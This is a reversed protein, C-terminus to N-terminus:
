WSYGLADLSRIREETLEGREKRGRLNAVWRGLAPNAWHRSPVRCHGHEKKFAKLENIRQEWPVQVGRPKRAWSFGLADLQRIRDEALRGRKKVQRVFNVWNALVPNSPYRFPVNCHGYEKKFAKLERIRQAWTDAPTWSFGLANLCHFLERSLRGQNKRKRITAVWYGLAPDPRYKRPVNCHEHEKKFAKLDNVRQTMTRQKMWCFGLADLRCAREEELTGRKKANRVNHVWSGLGPNPPYRAPVNCHGHQNKFQELEKFRQEWSPLGLRSPQQRKPKTRVVRKATKKEAM